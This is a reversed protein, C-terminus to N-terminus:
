KILTIPGNLEITEGRYTTAEVVIIYNGNEAPRGKISGDWGILTDDEGVEVYLLSGWTDYISMKVQEMCLSVPRITDNVGDGNPTFANPIVIDYGKTIEIVESYTETCGYPYEVTLEVQYTGIENYVHTPNEEGVVDVSGDGFDWTLNVIDGTSENFFSIPEEFSLVDCLTSNPSTYSFAADGIEPLDVVVDVEIPPCGNALSEQDHIYATYTGSVTTEMCQPNIPDCVEGGSWSFEYPPTGGTVFVYNTQTITNTSCDANINSTIYANIAPPRTLTIDTTGTSSCGNADAVDITYDGASLNELCWSGNGYDTWGTGTPFPNTGGTITICISGNTYSWDPSCNPNTTSDITYLLADPEDITIFNSYSCGNADTVTYNYNGASVTINGIGTYPPTGGSATITVVGSDGHCLIPSTVAANVTLATPEVVAISETTSCGNADTIVIDHTGATLTYNGTGTYPPVGGSATITYTATGGYCSIPNSVLVHSSLIATPVTLNYNLTISQPCNSDIIDLTYAGPALNEFELLNPTSPDSDQINGPNLTYTFSGSGGLIDVTIFGDNTNSCSVGYGNYDSIQDNIVIPSSTQEVTYIESTFECANADLVKLIYNGECANALQNSGTSVIIDFNGSNPISETYWEVLGYPLTGGQIDVEIYGDCNPFINNCSLDVLSVLSFTVPQPPVIVYSFEYTCGFVDTIEVMYDGPCLNYQNQLTPDSIANIETGSYTWNFTYPGVGSPNLEISGGCLPSYSCAINTINANDEVGPNVSVTLTFTDGICQPMNPNSNVYYTPTVDYILTQVSNSANNLIGTDIFPQDVGNSYGSILGGSLDNVSWTYLTLDPVITTSDPFVGNVPAFVFSDGDCLTEIHNPIQPKPEIWILISFPQGVCTGNHPTVIYEISQNVNTLNYLEQSILGVPTSNDSWGSINPNPIVVWTYTTNIPVITSSDPVGNVPQIIFPDGSCRTDTLGSNYPIFPTPKVVLEIVFSYSCSAATATINYVLSQDVNTTNILNLQEFQAENIGDTEGTINPNDTFTWTYTTGIPIVTNPPNNIPSFTFTDGSCTEFNQDQLFPRPTVTVEIEFTSGVCAGIANSIPTVEYVVVQAENSTNILTQSIIPGSGSTAGTINTNPLLVQWSYETGNPVVDGDINNLPQISFTDESCIEVIKDNILPRPNVVIQFSESLGQCSLGNATFTPTVDVTAVLPVNSSNQSTFSPIDGVGSLPLLGIDTNIEWNYSIVGGTNTTSFVITDVIEGTCVEIDSISLVVPEPNVTVTVTFADGECGDSTVPVVTYVVDVASPTTNTFADDSLDSASLGISVGAGGSSVTLGNLTLATINYTSAAVSSSPGFDIGLAQDSCVVASQDGVVPEPNVTVTVTFEDGECGNAGIPVLTYVVEVSNATDNTWVDGILADSPLTNGLGQNSISGVLGNDVISILNYSAVLPTDVDGQITYGIAVDSCVTVTQDAVLPEPDVTVTVTFADGECGNDGIPVLTYVVDVSNATDNTWVDNVLAGASLGNGIGQNTGSGVLGNSEVNTLNYTAVVPTDVDGEITYGIAVDSCVTVTQDDVVPEPNVTM